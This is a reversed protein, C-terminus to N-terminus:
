PIKVFHKPLINQNNKTSVLLFTPFFSPFATQPKKKKGIQSIKLNKPNKKLSKFSSFKQLLGARGPNPNPPTKKKKILTGGGFGKVFGKSYSRIKKM